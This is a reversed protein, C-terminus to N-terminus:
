GEGGTISGNWNLKEMVGSSLVEDGGESLM